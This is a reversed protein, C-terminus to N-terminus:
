STQESRIGALGFNFRQLGGNWLITMGLCCMARSRVRRWIAAAWVLAVIFYYLRFHACLDLAWYWNGCSGALTM